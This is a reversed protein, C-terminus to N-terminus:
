KLGEGMGGRYGIVSAIDTIATDSIYILGVGM